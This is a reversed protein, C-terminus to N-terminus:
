PSPPPNSNQDLSGEWVLPLMPWKQLSHKFSAQSPLAPGPGEVRDYVGILPVLRALLAAAFASSILADKVPISTTAKRPVLNTSPRSPLLYPRPNGPDAMEQGGAKVHSM